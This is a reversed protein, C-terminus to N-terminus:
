RGYQIPVLGPGGGSHASGGLTKQSTRSGCRPSARPRTRFGVRWCKDTCSGAANSPRMGRRASTPGSGFYPQGRGRNDRYSNWDNRYIPRGFGGIVHSLLAYRGYFEWFSGGSRDQRWQGYRDNGVYQYGPPHQDYDISGDAGKSVIVMGLYPEYRTYTRRDVREWERINNSAPTPASGWRRSCRM